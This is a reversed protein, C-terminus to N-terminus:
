KEYTKIILIFIILIIILIINISNLIAKLKIINSINNYSQQNLEYLKDLFILYNNYKNNQLKLHYYVKITILNIFTISLTSIILIMYLIQFCKDEIQFDNLWVLIGLFALIYWTKTNENNVNKVQDFIDREQIRIINEKIKIIDEEKQKNNFNLM